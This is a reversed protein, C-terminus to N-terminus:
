FPGPRQALVWQTGFIREQVAQWTLALSSLTIDVETPNRTGIDRLRDALQETSREPIPVSVFLRGQFGGTAPEVWRWVTPGKYGRNTLYFGPTM